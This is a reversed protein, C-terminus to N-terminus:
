HHLPRKGVRELDNWMDMLGWVPAHCTAVELVDSLSDESLEFELRNLSFISKTVLIEIELGFRCEFGM